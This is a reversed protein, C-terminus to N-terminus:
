GGWRIVEIRVPIVGDRIMDIDEAAARSLDVVRGAKHPGRDNIRVVIQRGNKLNVVRVLTGFPYTRHAATMEEHRYTEGNATRRGVFENGYFSAQGEDVALAAGGGPYNGGTGNSRSAPLCGACCLALAALCASRIQFRQSVHLM